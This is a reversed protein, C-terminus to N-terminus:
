GSDQLELKCTTIAAYLEDFYLNLKMFYLYIEFHMQFAVNKQM